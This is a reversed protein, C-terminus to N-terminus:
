GSMGPNPRQLRTTHDPSVFGDDILVREAQLELSKNSYGQSGPGPLGVDLHERVVRARQGLDDLHEEQSASVVKDDMCHHLIRRRKSSEDDFM